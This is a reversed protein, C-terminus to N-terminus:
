RGPERGSWARAVGTLYAEQRAIARVAASRPALDTLVRRAPPCVGVLMHLGLTIPNVGLGLLIRPDRHKRFMRVTAAGASEMKRLREVHDVPHWHYNVAAADYRIRVGAQQLRYGLELDEHGYAAFSEDFLGVRLLDSRRVSANGTLFFMWSLRRRWSPHLSHLRRLGGRVSSVDNLSSVQIERGVIASGPHRAHAAMHARLLGPDALIDADTFLVFTGQAARIGTNRAAARSAGADALLRVNPADIEAVIDATEDTSGGDCVLIEVSGPRCDQGTITPLVHQLTDARNLTPLVVSVLPTM